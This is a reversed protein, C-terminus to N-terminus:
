NQLTTGCYKGSYTVKEAWAINIPVSPLANNNEEVNKTM